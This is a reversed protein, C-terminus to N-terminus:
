LNLDEFIFNVQIFQRFNLSCNNPKGEVPQVHIINNGSMNVVIRMDTTAVTKFVGQWSCTVLKALFARCACELPLSLITCSPWQCSWDSPPCLCHCRVTVIQLSVLNYTHCLETVFILLLDTFFFSKRTSCTLKISITMIYKKSNIFCNM